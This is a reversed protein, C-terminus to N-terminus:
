ERKDTRGAKSRRRPEDRIVDEAHSELYRLAVLEGYELRRRVADPDAKARGIELLRTVKRAEDPTLQPERAPM